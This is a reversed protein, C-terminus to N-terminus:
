ITQIVQLKEEKTNCCIKKMEKAMQQENQRRESAGEDFDSRLHPLIILSCMSTVRGASEEAPEGDSLLRELHAGLEQFGLPKRYSCSSPSPSLLFFPSFYPIVM